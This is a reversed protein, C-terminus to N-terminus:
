KSNTKDKLWRLLNSFDAYPARYEIPTVHEIMERHSPAGYPVPGNALAHQSDTLVRRFPRAAASRRRAPSTGSPGTAHPWGAAM